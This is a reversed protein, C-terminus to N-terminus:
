EPRVIERPDIWDRVSIFVLSWGQRHTFNIANNDVDWERFIRAADFMQLGRPKGLGTFTYSKCLFYFYFSVVIENFSNNHWHGIVSYQQWNIYQWFMTETYFFWLKIYMKAIHEMKLQERCYTLQHLAASKVTFTVSNKKQTKYKRGWPLRAQGFCTRHTNVNRRWLM